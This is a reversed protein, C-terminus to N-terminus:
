GVALRQQMALREVGDVLNGLRSAHQGDALSIRDDASQGPRARPLDRALTSSLRDPGGM